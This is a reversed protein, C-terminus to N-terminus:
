GGSKGKMLVKITPFLEDIFQLRVPDGKRLQDPGAPTSYSFQHDLEVSFFSENESDDYATAAFYYKQGEELGELKWQTAKGVDVMASYKFLMSHCSPDEQGSRACIDRWEQICNENRPENAQCWAEILGIVEYRSM